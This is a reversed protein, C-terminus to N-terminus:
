ELDMNMELDLLSDLLSLEPLPKAAERKHGPACLATLDRRRKRGIECCGKAARRSRHIRTAVAGGEPNGSDGIMAM